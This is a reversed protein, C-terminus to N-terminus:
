KPLLERLREIPIAEAVGFRSRITTAQFLSNPLGWEDCWWQAVRPIEQPRAALLNFAVKSSM